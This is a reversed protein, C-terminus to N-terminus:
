IEKQCEYINGQKDIAMWRVYSKSDKNVLHPRIAENEIITGDSFELTGNNFYVGGTVRDNLIVGGFHLVDRPFQLALKGDVYINKPESRKHQVYVGADTFIRDHDAYYDRIPGTKHGDDFLFYVAETPDITIESNGKLQSETMPIACVNGNTSIVWSMALVPLKVKGKHSVLYYDMDNGNAAIMMIIAYFKSEDPSVYLNMIGNYPGYSKGGIKLGYPTTSNTNVTQYKQLSAQKNKQDQQSNQNNQKEQCDKLSDIPPKDFPGSIRDHNHFYFKGNMVTIFQFQEFSGNFFVCVEDGALKEGDRLKFIVKGHDKSQFKEDVESQQQSSSSNKKGPLNEKIKKLLQADSKSYFSSVLVVTLLLMKKM